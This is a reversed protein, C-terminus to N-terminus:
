VFAMLILSSPNSKPDPNGTLILTRNSLPNCRQPEEGLQRVILEVVKDRGLSLQEGTVRM